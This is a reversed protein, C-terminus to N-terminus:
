DLSKPQRLLLDDLTPLGLVRKRIDTRMDMWATILALHSDVDANSQLFKFVIEQIGSLEGIEIERDKREITVWEEFISENGNKFSVVM